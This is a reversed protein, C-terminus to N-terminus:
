RQCALEWLRNIAPMDNTNVAIVKLRCAWPAPGCCRIQGRDVVWLIRFM